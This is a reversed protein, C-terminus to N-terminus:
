NKWNKLVEEISEITNEARNKFIAFREKDYYEQLKQRLEDIGYPINWTDLRDCCNKSSLIDLKELYARASGVLVKDKSSVLQYNEVAEKELIAMINNVQEKSPSLDIRNGLVFAKQNLLVGDEDMVSRFIDLQPGILNPNTGSNNVLIIADAKSLMDVTQNKHVKTPSDFYPVDHLVINEMDELQTSRIIISEVAYPQADRVLGRDKKYGIIGTIYLKVQEQIEKEDTFILPEHDLLKRITDLGDLISRIEWVTTHNALYLKSSPDVTEWYKNFEPLSPTGEYKVADFMGQLKRDFDSKTLFRIEVEDNHGARIETKVFTTREPQAPLINQKLLANCLTSKGAKELGVVAVNFERSMLKNLIAKNRKQLKELCQKEDFSIVMGHDDSKFLNDFLRDTAILKEIFMEREFFNNAM